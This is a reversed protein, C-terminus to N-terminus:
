NCRKHVLIVERPEQKVSVDALTLLNEFNTIWSLDTTARIQRRLESDRLEIVMLHLCLCQRTATVIKNFQANKALALNVTEVSVKLM